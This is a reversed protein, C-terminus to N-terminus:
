KKQLFDFDVVWYIIEIEKQKYTLISDLLAIAGEVGAKHEDLQATIQNFNGLRRFVNHNMYYDM